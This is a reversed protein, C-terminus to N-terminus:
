QDVFGSLAKKPHPVQNHPFHEDIPSVLLTGEQVQRATLLMPKDHTLANRLERRDKPTEPPACVSRLHVM